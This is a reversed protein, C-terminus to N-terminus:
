GAMDQEEWFLEQEIKLGNWILYCVLAFDWISFSM